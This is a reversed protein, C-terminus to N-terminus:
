KAQAGEAAEVYFRLCGGISVIRSGLM